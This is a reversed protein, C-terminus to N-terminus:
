RLVIQKYVPGLADVFDSESVLFAEAASRVLPEHDLLGAAILQRVRPGFCLAADEWTTNDAASDLRHLIAVLVGTRDYSTLRQSDIVDFPNYPGNEVGDGFGGSYRVIDAYMRRIHQKLNNVM